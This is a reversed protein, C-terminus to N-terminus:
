PAFTCKYSYFGPNAANGGFTGGGHLGALGSTRGTFTLRGQYPVGSGTLIFV